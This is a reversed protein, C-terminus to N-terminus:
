WALSSFSLCTKPALCMERGRRDKLRFMDNGFTEWRGTKRWNDAPSLAPLLFEQGGVADMEERIIGIIKRLVRWGLPLINYVGAAHMRIFGTRLLYRHSKIEAEKPVEKLTPLFYRSLRM